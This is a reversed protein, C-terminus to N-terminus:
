PRLTALRENAAAARVPDIECGLFSCGLSLAAVGTTGSGAFPDLVVVDRGARGFAEICRRPLEEPFRSYHAPGRRPENSLDWVSRVPPRVRFAHDERRALLYVGEHARHPRRCRGEPLPNRKRWVVEGRFLWGDDCLALVLRYPLALLNGYRLWPVAPDVFARRRVRPKVYAANDPALGARQPGLTSHQRDALRWNVPTDYADGVNVWAIGDPALRDALLGFLRVLTALWARPDAEEGTGASVRQGWYPPSTVIVAISAPPLAPVLALCDGTVVTDLPYPGLCREPATV